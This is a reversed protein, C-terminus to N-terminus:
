CSAAPTGIAGGAALYHADCGFSGARRIGTSVFSRLFSWTAALRSVLLRFVAGARGARLSLRTREIRGDLLQCHWRIGTRIRFRCLSLQLLM